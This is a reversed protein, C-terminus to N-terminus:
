TPPKSKGVLYGVFGAGIMKLMEWAITVRSPDDGWVVFGLCVFLVLVTGGAAILYTQRDKWRRLDGDKRAEDRRHADDAPDAIDIRGRSRAALDGLDLLGPSPPPNPVHAAPPPRM